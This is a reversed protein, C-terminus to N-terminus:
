AAGHLERYLWAQAWAWDRKVTTPSVGLVAATENVSLGAYFRCEVVRSERPAMVSLRDLAQDLGLLSDIDGDQIALRDALGIDTDDISADPIGSGRKFANRRRAHDTLIHRMAKAAVGLFHSRGEWDVAQGGAIKLYAEHVLATTGLTADDAWRYRVRDAMDHLIDYVRDFLEPLAEENGLRASELLLTITSKSGGADFEDVPSSPVLACM